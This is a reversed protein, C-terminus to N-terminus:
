ANSAVEGNLSQGTAARGTDMDSSATKTRKRGFDLGGRRRQKPPRGRRSPRGLRRLLFRRLIAQAEARWHAVAWEHLDRDAFCRRYAEGRQRQWDRAKRSRPWLQEWTAIAAGRV